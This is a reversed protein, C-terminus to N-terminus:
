GDVRCVTSNDREDTIEKEGPVNDVEVVTTSDHRCVKVQALREDGGTVSNAPSLLDSEDARGPSDGAGVEVPARPVPLHSHIREVQNGRANRSLGAAIKPIMRFVSFFM